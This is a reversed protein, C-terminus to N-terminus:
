AARSAAIKANIFEAIQSELFAIRGGFKVAKIEGRKIYNYVTPRSLTTAEMVQRMDLLKPLVPADDIEM